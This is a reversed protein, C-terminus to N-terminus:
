DDHGEAASRRFQGPWSQGAVIAMLQQWSDCRARRAKPPFARNVKTTHIADGDLLNGLSHQREQGIM